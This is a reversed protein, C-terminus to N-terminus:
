KVKRRFRDQKKKLYDKYKKEIKLEEKLYEKYAEKPNISIMLPKYSTDLPEIKLPSTDVNFYNKLFEPYTLM